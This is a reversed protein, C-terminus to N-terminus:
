IDISLVFHGDESEVSVVINRQGVSGGEVYIQEPELDLEDMLTDRVVAQSFSSCGKLVYCLNSNIIGQTYKTWCLKGHKIVDQDCAGSVQVSQADPEQTEDDGTLKSMFNKANFSWNTLLGVIVFVAITGIFILFIYTISLDGKKKMNDRKM